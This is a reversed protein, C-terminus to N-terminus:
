SITMVFCFKSAVRNSNKSPWDTIHFPLIFRTIIILRTNETCHDCISSLASGSIFLLLLSYCYYNTQRVDVSTGELSSKGLMEVAVPGRQEMAWRHVFAVRTRRHVTARELPAPM